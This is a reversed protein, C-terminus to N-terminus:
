IRATFEGSVAESKGALLQAVQRMSEQDKRHSSFIIHRAINISFTAERDPLTTTIFLTFISISSLIEILNSVTYDSLGGGVDHTIISLPLM